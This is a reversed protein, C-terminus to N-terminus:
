LHKLAYDAQSGTFQGGYESVLQERLAARSLHLIRRYSRAAALAERNWNAKVHNAGYHAAKKSFQGGYRSHLQDYLAAKSIDLIRVYSTAQALAARQEGTAAQAPLATGLALSGALVAAAALRTIKM